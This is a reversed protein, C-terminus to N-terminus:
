AGVSGRGGNRRGTEAAHGKAISRVAARNNGPGSRAGATRIWGAICGHCQPAHGTTSGTGWRSSVEGVFTQNGSSENVYIRNGDSVFGFKQLGDNTIQKSGVMRPPASPGDLWMVLGIVVVASVAAAGLRGAIRGRATKKAGSEASAAAVTRDSSTDRRMRKLDARMEAASQYRVERDKELAKLICRELEAPINPNLRLPPVPAKHIIADFLAGSTTGGFRCRGRQWKM